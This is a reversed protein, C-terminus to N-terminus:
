GGSPGAPGGRAAAQIGEYSGETQRLAVAISASVQRPPISAWIGVASITAGALLLALTTLAVMWSGRAQISLAGLAWEPQSPGPMRGPPPFSPAQVSPLSATITGSVSAQHWQLFVAALLCLFGCALVALAVGVPPRTEVQALLAVARQGLLFLFRFGAFVFFALLVMALFVLPGENGALTALPRAADEPSIVGAAEAVARGGAFGVLLACAFLFL